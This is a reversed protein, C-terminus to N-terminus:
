ISAVMSFFVRPNKGRGILAEAAVPRTLPQTWMLNGTIYNNFVFRSGIGTSMATATHEVNIINKINWIKGADYFVYPQFSQLARWGPAVDMRLEATAGVGRDGIIEAPDYGRGLQSGGFSFQESSLLPRFSYQGSVLFYASYRGYISQVRAAQGLLKIFNADGGFRSTTLSNTNTSANM